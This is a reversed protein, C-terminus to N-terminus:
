LNKRLVGILAIRIPGVSRVGERTVENMWESFKVVVHFAWCTVDVQHKGLPLADFYIVAGLTPPHPKVPAFEVLDDLPCALRFASFFTIVVIVVAVVVAVVMRAAVNEAFVVLVVGLPM